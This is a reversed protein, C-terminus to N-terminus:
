QIPILKVKPKKLEKRPITITLIGNDYKTKLKDKDIDQPLQIMRKFSGYFIEQKVYNNEKEKKSEKKVGEINLINNEDISLKINEKPVGALDFELIYTSDTHQMNTRPYSLNNLKANSFHTQILSDFYQNMKAFEKDYPNSPVIDNATVSVSTLISAAIMSGIIKKM